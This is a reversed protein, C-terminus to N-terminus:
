KGCDKPFSKKIKGHLMLVFFFVPGSAIGVCLVLYIIGCSFHEEM